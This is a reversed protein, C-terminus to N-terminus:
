HVSGEALARHVLRTDCAAGFSASFAAKLCCHSSARAMMVAATAIPTGSPRSARARAAQLYRYYCPPLRARCSEKQRGLPQRVLDDVRQPTSSPNATARSSRASASQSQWSTAGLKAFRVTERTIPRGRCSDIHDRSAVAWQPHRRRHPDSDPPDRDDCARSPDCSRSPVIKCRRRKRRAVTVPVWSREQV